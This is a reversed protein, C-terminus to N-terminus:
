GPEVQAAILRAYVGNRALLEAHTGQEVARGDDMVLILDAQRVTSLRHAIVIRTCTLKELQEQVARETVSDLASTAEDLLLIAPRRALARALAVRQRQGGSLSAGGDLLRTDYGMPLASIEDHIAALRAAAIVDQLPLQPDSMAINSRLSAGFLYARQNVIGVQQRLSRVDLSELDAGDFAIHGATPQYLGLLLSALTSKGSGSRGVIAVFTGAEIDLSVDRLVPPASPTYRFSVNDLTIRGGLTVLRRSQDTPQEPAAGLVDEIRELYSTLLQLQTATGVLNGLPGLFASALACLALVAGLTMTGDLVQLAGFGLVVLPSGMRLAGNLSDVLASLRSRDLAVNLQDVFLGSWHEGARLESGTSKLTEIGALMEVLYSEARAQKALSDGMLDHQRQRSFWFVALQALALLLVVVGFSASALFILMLYLLVLGGDLVTSLLSSTLMERINANSNVRMMLDGASRQQFYAYPLRLLHDLFSLTMRADFITRLQILLYARVMSSLFYFGILGAMGVALVALLHQDGRPVVRDVVTGTLVPLALAFLQLLLSVLIIRPWQGSEAVISRLQKWMPRAGPASPTFRDSPELLLAVGTFSRCFQEASVRRRGTGPDVIEVSDGRLREFVVFHNLEWHLITGKPLWQIEEVDIKVGRGRLGYRSAADLIALASAGDRGIGMLARIEDLPVAKHYYGLVMALCAAGCETASLQRMVPIHRRPRPQPALKGLAPHRRELDPVPTGSRAM